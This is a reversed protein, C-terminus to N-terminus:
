GAISIWGDRQLQRATSRFQTLREADVPDPPMARGATSPRNAAPPWLLSHIEALSHGEGDKLALLLRDTLALGDPVPLPKCTPKNTTPTMATCAVVQSLCIVPG